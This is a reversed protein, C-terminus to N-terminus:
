KTPLIGTFVFNLISYASFIIVLGLTAWILTDRGKKVKDMNGDATMWMFGGVIFYILSIAGTLGLIAKIVLGILEQPTNATLPNDISIVSKEAHVSSTTFIIIAWVGIFNIIKKIM